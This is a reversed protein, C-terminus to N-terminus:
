PGNQEWWVHGYAVWQEMTWGEPLGTLPLPPAGDPSKQQLPTPLTSDLADQIESESVDGTIVEGSTSTDLAAARRETASGAQLASGRPILQEETSIPRLEKRARNGLVFLGGLVAMFFLAFTWAPLGLAEFLGSIGGSNPNRAKSVQIELATDTVTLPGSLTSNAIIRIQKLGDESSSRPNITVSVDVSEGVALESISSPTIMLDWGDPTESYLLVGTPTNGMNRVVINLETPSEIGSIKSVESDVQLWVSELVTVELEVTFVEANGSPSTSQIIVPVKDVLIGEPTGGPLELGISVVSDRNMDMSFQKGSLFGGSWGSPLTGLTLEIVLPVNGSNHLDIHCSSSQGMAVSFGPGSDVDLTTIERVELITGNNVTFDDLTTKITITNRDGKEAALPVITLITLTTSESPYVVVQLSAVEGLPPEESSLFVQTPWTNSSSLARVEFELPVNGDNTISLNTRVINGNLVAQPESAALPGLAFGLVDFIETHFDRSEFVTVQAFESTQLSPDNVSTTVCTVQNSAGAPLGDSSPPVRVRIPVPVFQLRSLPGLTITSSQSNGIQINWRDESQCSITYETPGNGINKISLSFLAIEGPEAGLGETGAPITYLGEVRLVDFSLRISHSTTPALKDYLNLDTVFNGPLAYRAESSDSFDADEDTLILSIVIRDGSQGFPTLVWPATENLERSWEDLPQDLIGSEDVVQVATVSLDVTIESTGENLLELQFTVGNATSPDLTRSKAQEGEQFNSPITGDVLLPTIRVGIQTVEFELEYVNNNIGSNEDNIENVESLYDLTLRLIHQGTTSFSHYLSFSEIEGGVLSQMSYTGIETGQSIDELKISYQGTSSSAQNLWSLQISITDGQLPNNESSYISNSVVTLDSTLLEEGKASIVVSFEQAFGGSHGIQITWVGSQASDMRVREINNLHDRTGGLSSIGDIFNNGRFISGDPGTIILDLDSVLRSANQDASVSGERDNWALTADFGLEGDLDFTYIFSHGPLIQRDYDFFISLNEEGSVPFLSNSLNLQGWGEQNNPINPTGIDDAGNVLLARILDSRPTSIGVEERLHQRAMASAGAVVPTAMSSGSLAMYRPTNEGPHTSTSCPGGTAFSAEAARASCLMVGPAVLDPKIRGDLTPGVSSSNAVFGPSDSNFAGTTSAGVSLVNKATSPSTVGANAMDGASFLILFEPNEFTFLDASRSDSTYQGVLSESGWSNTQIYADNQMSHQFMEYLSGWRALIGSSDVELQYFHFTSEPVMGTANSDGSGDGLLTAAVHTGHGSNTDAGSNDPGFLNYIPNRLRSDFDGHDTDLGTDSIAIVEGSGSLIGGSINRSQSIGSILSANTNHIALLPGADIKIVRYDSALYKLASPSAGRIQCLHPDCRFSSIGNSLNEGIEYSLRSVDSHSIRPNPTIDLDVFIHEIGVLNVLSPSVKWANPLPSIWRVQHLKSIQQIFDDGGIDPSSIVLADDPIHDIVGVGFSQLSAELTELDTSNSQIIFLRDSIPAELGLKEWPGLPIQDFIPDFTGYPSMIKGTAESLSYHTSIPNSLRNWTSAEDEYIDVIPSIEETNSSPSISHVVPSILLLSIVVYVSKALAM